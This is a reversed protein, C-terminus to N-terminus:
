AAAGGIGKWTQILGCRTQTESSTLQIHSPQRETGPSRPQTPRGRATRSRPISSCPVSFSTSSSPRAARMACCSSSWRSPVRKGCRVGPARKM